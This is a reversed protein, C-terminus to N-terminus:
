SPSSLNHSIMIDIVLAILCVELYVYVTFMRSIEYGTELRFVNYLFM